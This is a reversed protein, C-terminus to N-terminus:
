LTFCAELTRYLEMNSVPKSLYEDMGAAICRERDGSLAHATLAIIRQRWDSGSALEAARIRRCAELGDLEPMQVDMLVADYRNAQVAAIADLGNEVITVRHGRESLAYRFLRQNVTNDEAVLVDLPRWRPVKPLPQGKGSDPAAQGDSTADPIALPLEFWFSSGEGEQSSFHISGGMMRVLADSISLGLGTGGYRRTISTDAQEFANFIGSQKDLPIGIGTDSITFRLLHRDAKLGLSSVKVDVSGSHTFKVANSIFNMVIQRLRQPDGLLQAPVGAEVRSTIGINKQSAASEFHQICYEIHDRLNFQVVDLAMKGAEIRSFDLIDNVLYLLNRSADLSTEVYDRQQDSLVTAQALELMGIMGNLPTRIEHSMNALFESKARNAAEALQKAQLLQQRASREASVDRVVGVVKNLMNDEVVGFSLEVPLLSGNDRCLVTDLVVEATEGRAFNQLVAQVALRQASDLMGPLDCGILAAFPRGALNGMAPNCFDLLQNQDLTFIGETVAEVVTRYRAEAQQLKEVTARREREARFAMVLNSCVSVFLDLSALMGEYYGGPRNAIGLMGVLQGGSYIPLGLFANMQPHGPPLGGRRPDVGPNNAIVPEGTVMVTGFLTKLNRFELGQLRNAEYFRRTEDNWAINTLSHSKLYPNGEPDHLVEGIFGYESETLKLVLDLLVDFPNYAKASGVYDALAKSVSELMVNSDRIADEDRKRRTVDRVVSFVMGSELLVCSWELWIYEGSALIYRNCFPPRPGDRYIAAFEEISADRDQPHVMEIFPREALQAADIGLTELFAKNAKRFVGDCGTMCMMEPSVEFISWENKINEIMVSSGSVSALGAAYWNAWGEPVVANLVVALDRYLRCIFTVYPLMGPM